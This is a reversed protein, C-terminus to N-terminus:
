CFFYVLRFIVSCYFESFDFFDKLDLLDPIRVTRGTRIIKSFDKIVPNAPRKEPKKSQKESSQNVDSNPNIISIEKSSSVKSPYLNQVTTFLEGKQENIKARLSIGDADPYLESIRALTWFLKKKDDSGVLVIDEVKRDFVKSVKKKSIIYFTHLVSSVTRQRTLIWYKERLSNLIHPIGVHGRKTYEEMILVKVIPPDNLLIAPTKFDYTDNREFITSKSRIMGDDIFPNPSELRKDKLGSFAISQLLRIIGKETDNLENATLENKEQKDCFHLSTRISQWHKDM